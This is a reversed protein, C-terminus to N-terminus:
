LIFYKEYLMLCIMKRHALTDNKHTLVFTKNHMFLLLSYLTMFLSLLPDHFTLTLLPSQFTFTLFPDNCTLLPNHQLSVLLALLRSLGASSHCILWTSLPRIISVVLIILSVHSSYM